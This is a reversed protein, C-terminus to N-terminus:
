EEMIAPNSTGDVAAMVKMKLDAVAATAGTAAVAWIGTMGRVAMAAAKEVVAVTDARLDALAKRDVMGAKRVVMAVKHAAMDKHDAAVAMIAM